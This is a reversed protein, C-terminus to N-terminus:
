RRKVIVFAARREGELRRQLAERLVTAIQDAPRNRQRQITQFLSAEGIRLGAEDCVACAAPSLLLLLDGRDLQWRQSIYRTDCDIGLPPLLSHVGSGLVLRSDKRLLCGAMNGALAFELRGDDDVAGTGVLARLEGTSASWVAENLRTLLKAPDSQYTAQTRWGVHLGAANLPASIKDGNVAALTFAIRSDPLVTWSFFEDGLPSESCWGALDWSDSHPAFQPLRDKRWVAAANRNRRETQSDLGANLLTERELDAAIRGAIIELLNTQETSFDRGTKSFCWLTGLPVTPSSVPVCVASPYAEPCKWHPLMATDELVVAHGVLAELDAVSGRLPRPPDLFRTRPLNHMARLKLSTTAEDLLYLGAADAGVAEVGGKLVTELRQALHEESPKVTVPVGAALEAERQWLAHRTKSLESLLSGIALALPRVNEFALMDALPNASNAETALPREVVLRAARGGAQPIDASWLESGEPQSTEVVRIEWGTAREFARCM